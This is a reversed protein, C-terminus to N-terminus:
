LLDIGNKLIREGYAKNKQPFSFRPWQLLMTWTSFQRFPTENSINELASFFSRSYQIPENEILREVSNEIAPYVLVMLDTEHSLFIMVVPFCIKENKSGRIECVFCWFIDKQNLKNIIYNLKNVLFTYLVM